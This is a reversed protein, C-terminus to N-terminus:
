AIELPIQIQTHLFGTADFPISHMRKVLFVKDDTTLLGVENARDPVTDILEGYIPLTVQFAPRWVILGAQPPTGPVAVGEIQVPTFIEDVDEDGSLQVPFDQFLTASAANGLVAKTVPDTSFGGLLELIRKRGVETVVEAHDHAGLTVLDAPRRESRIDTPVEVLRPGAAMAPSTNSVDLDVFTADSRSRFEPDALYVGNAEGSFATWQNQDDTDTFPGAPAAAYSFKKGGDFAFYLNNLLQSLGPDAVFRISFSNSGMSTLINNRLDVASESVELAYSPFSPNAADFRRQLVTNHYVKVGGAHVVKIGSQAEGKRVENNSIRNTTPTDVARELRIQGEEVVNGNVVVGFDSGITVNGTVVFGDVQTFPSRIDFSLMTAKVLRPLPPGWLQQSGTDIQIQPFLPAPDPQGLSFIILPNAATPVLTSPIVIAEPTVNSFVEITIPEIFAGPPLAAIAASLTAYDQQPGGVKIRQTM